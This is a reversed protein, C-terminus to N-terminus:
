QLREGLVLDQQLATPIPGAAVREGSEPLPPLVQPAVATVTGRQVYRLRDSGDALASSPTFSAEVTWRHSQLTGDDSFTAQSASTAAMTAQLDNPELMWRGRSQATEEQWIYTESGVYATGTTTPVLMRWSHTQQWTSAEGAIQLDLGAIARSVILRLNESLANHRRSIKPLVDLAVGLVRGDTSTQLVVKGKALHEALEIAIPGMRGQESPMPAAILSAQVIDCRVEWRDRRLAVGEACDMTFALEIEIARAEANQVKGLWIAWPLQLSVQTHWRQANQWDRQLAVPAASATHLVLLVTFM